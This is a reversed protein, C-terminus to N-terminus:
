FLHVDGLEPAGGPLCVLTRIVGPIACLRTAVEPASESTTLVHVNPGADLTFYVPLGEERLGWVHRMVAVTAPHWYLAPPEATMAVAHLLMAEREAVRGLLDLNRSLIATRALALHEGTHALRAGQCPSSPAAQHGALSPLEKPEESVIVIIDRVAWWDRDALSYAYSDEHRGGAVWEVWGGFISRAASGSGLRAITSVTREEPTLGLAALGAVTMAAYLSASGAIGTAVPFTSRSVMRAPWDTGALARLHGLHRIVQERPGGTAPALELEITDQGIHPSFEITVLTYAQDLTLSLSSNLPLNLEPDLAGWYKVFAINSGARATAKM